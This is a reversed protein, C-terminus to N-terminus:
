LRLVIDDGATEVRYRRIKIHEYALCQGTPVHYELGHWPCVVVEKDYIWQPKFDSREDATLSGTLLKAECVPGTQHPCINPLAYLRGKINFVGIQRTGVVVVEHHGEPFDAVKGLRYRKRGNEPELETAVRFSGSSKRVLTNEAHAPKHATDTM